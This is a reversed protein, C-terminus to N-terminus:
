NGASWMLIEEPSLEDLNATENKPEDTYEKEETPLDGLKVTCGMGSFELVGQKRLMKLLREVEKIDM